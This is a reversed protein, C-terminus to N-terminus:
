LTSKDGFSFMNLNARHVASTSRGIKDGSFSRSTSNQTYFAVTSKYSSANCMYFEERLRDFTSSKQPRLHRDVEKDICSLPIIKNVALMCSCRMRLCRKGGRKVVDQFTQRVLSKLVTASNDSTSSKIYLWRELCVFLCNKSGTSISPFLRLSHSVCECATDCRKNAASHHRGFITWTPRFTDIKLDSTCRLVRAIARIAPAHSNSCTKNPKVVPYPCVTQKCTDDDRIGSSRKFPKM